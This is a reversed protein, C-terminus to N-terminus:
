MKEKLYGHIIIINSAVQEFNEYMSPDMDDPQNINLKDRVPTRLPTQGTPQGNQTIMPTMGRPTLGVIDLLIKLYVLISEPATVRGNRCGKKFLTM